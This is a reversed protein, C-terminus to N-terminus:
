NSIGNIHLINSCGKSGTFAPILLEVFVLPYSHSNLNEKILDYLDTNYPYGIKIM